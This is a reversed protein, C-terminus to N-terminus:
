RVAAKALARLATVAEGVGNAIGLAAIHRPMDARRVPDALLAAAAAAIKDADPPASAVIGLRVARRIRRTQDDALPVAVLPRGHALTHVLTTGGNSVVM